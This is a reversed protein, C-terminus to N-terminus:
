NDNGEQIDGLAKTFDEEAILRMQILVRELVLV